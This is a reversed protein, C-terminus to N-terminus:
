SGAKTKLIEGRLAAAASRIQRLLDQAQPSVGAFHTQDWVAYLDSATTELALALKRAQDPDMPEVVAQKRENPYVGFVAKYHERADNVM